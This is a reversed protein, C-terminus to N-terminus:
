EPADPPPPPPAPPRGDVADFADRAKQITACPYFATRLADPNPVRCVMQDREMRGLFGRGVQLFRAATAQTICQTGDDAVWEVPCRGDPGVSPRKARGRRRRPSGESVGGSQALIGGAPTEPAPPMSPLALAGIVCSVRAITSGRADLTLAAPAISELARAARALAESRGAMIARVIETGAYNLLPDNAM